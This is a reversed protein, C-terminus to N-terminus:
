SLHCVNRERKRYTPKKPFKPVTKRKFRSVCIISRFTYYVCNCMVETTQSQHVTIYLSPTCHHTCKFVKLKIEKSVIKLTLMLLM